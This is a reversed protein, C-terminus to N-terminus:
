HGIAATTWTDCMRQLFYTLLIKYYFLFCHALNKRTESQHCIHIKWINLCNNELPCSREYVYLHLHARPNRGAWILTSLCDYGFEGAIRSVNGGTQPSQPAVASHHGYVESVSRDSKLPASRWLHASLPHFSHGEPCRSTGRNSGAVVCVNYNTALRGEAITGASSLLASTLKVYESCESSFVSWRQCRGCPLGWVWIRTLTQECM